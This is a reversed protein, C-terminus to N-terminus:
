DEIGQPILSGENSFRLWGPSDALLVRGDLAYDFAGESSILGLMQWYMDLLNTTAVLKILADSLRSVEFPENSLARALRNGNLELRLDVGDGRLAVANPNAVRLTVEFRQEFGQSALPVINVLSVEPPELRSAFSACGSALATLLLLLLASNGPRSERIQVPPTKSM